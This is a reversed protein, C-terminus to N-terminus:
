YKVVKCMYNKNNKCSLLYIEFRNSKKDILIDLKKDNCGIALEEKLIIGIIYDIRLFVRYKSFNLAQEKPFFEEGMQRSIQNGYQKIYM